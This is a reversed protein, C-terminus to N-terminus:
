WLKMCSANELPDCELVLFFLPKRIEQVLVVFVCADDSFHVSVSDGSSLEFSTTATEFNVSTHSLVLRDM